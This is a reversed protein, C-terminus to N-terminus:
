AEVVARPDEADVADHIAKLTPRELKWDGRSPEGDVDLADILCTALEITTLAEPSDHDTVERAIAIREHKTLGRKVGRGYRTPDSGVTYAIEERLEGNTLYKRRDDAM